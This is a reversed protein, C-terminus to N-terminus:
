RHEQGHRAERRTIPAIRRRTSDLIRQATVALFPVRVLLIAVAPSLRYYLRVATRGMPRTLLVQDRFARLEDTRPDDIGYVASAIFCRTDRSRRAAEDAVRDHHQRVVRDFRDHEALGGRKAEKSRDTDVPGMRAKLLCKQECFGMEALDSATVRRRTM